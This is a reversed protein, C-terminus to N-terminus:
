IISFITHFVVPRLSMRFSYFTTYLKSAFIEIALFQLNTFPVIAGLCPM